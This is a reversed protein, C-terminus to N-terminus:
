FSSMIVADTGDWLCSIPSHLIGSWWGTAKTCWKAYIMLYHGLVVTLAALGRLSDLQELRGSPEGM